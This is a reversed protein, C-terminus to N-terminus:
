RPVLSHLGAQFSCFEIFPEFGDKFRTRITAETPGSDVVDLDIVTTIIEPTQGLNAYLASPSGLAQLMETASPMSMLGFAEASAAFLHERGGMVEATAELIRRLQPYSSWSAEDALVDLSRTEGARKLVEDLADRGGHAEVYRVVYLTMSGAFHRGAQRETGSTTRDV